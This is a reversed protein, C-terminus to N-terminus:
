NIKTLENITPALTVSGKLRYGYDINKKRAWVQLTEFLPVSCAHNMIQVQANKWLNLQEENSGESRARDISEDAVNCHSFNTVAKPTGVISKSHYFQSLYTDAVPFRAAGYLVIPSQDKRIEAHFDSHQKIDLELNIGARALQKQIVKMPGLLAPIETIISKITFGNPYGAEVLLSKAKKLDYSYKPIEDTFGLYGNPVPSWSINTVCCGIFNRIASRNLTHAIARRVRIDDLPKVNTNLHLTRLEGPEFVDIIMDDNKEMRQLWVSERQGMILDVEGNTFAQERASYSSMYRVEVAKISPQGRFYAKHDTLRVRQEPVYEDFMFPGTGIPKNKFGENGMEKLAKMSIINGGHYNAVLGLLSPVRKSLTIRVTYRDLADINSFNAYDSSVASTEPNAARKLSGVVDNATLEGYGHHFQVGKRLHFTWALGDSSTEWRLAIDPEIFNPNISGPKFRVLGNFVMGFVMKDVSATSLHPDLKIADKGNVALRLTSQAFASGTTLNVLFAILVSKIIIRKM